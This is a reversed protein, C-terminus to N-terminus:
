PTKEKPTRCASCDDSKARNEESTLWQLNEITDPGCCALPCVHDIQHDACRVTSGKDPGGPCPRLRKFQRLIARNRHQNHGDAWCAPHEIPAGHRLAALEIGDREAGALWRRDATPLGEHALAVARRAHAIMDLLLARQGDNLQPSLQVEAEIADLKLLEEEAWLDADTQRAAEDGLRDMGARNPTADNARAALACTLSFAALAALLTKM